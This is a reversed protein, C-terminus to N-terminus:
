ILSPADKITFSYTYFTNHLVFWVCPRNCRGSRRDKSNSTSSAGVSHSCPPLDPPRLKHNKKYRLQYSFYAVNLGQSDSDFSSTSSSSSTGVISAFLCRQLTTLTVSVFCVYLVALASHKYTVLICPVCHFGADANVTGSLLSFQIQLVLLLM